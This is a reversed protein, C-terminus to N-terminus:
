EGEVIKVATGTAYLYGFGSYYQIGVVYDAGLAEAQKKLESHLKKPTIQSSRYSVLGLIEYDEDINVTSLIVGNKKKDAAMGSPLLIFMIFLLVYITIRFFHLKKYKM